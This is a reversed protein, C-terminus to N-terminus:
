FLFKGTQLDVFDHLQITAKYNNLHKYEGNRTQADLKFGIDYLSGNDTRQILNRKLFYQIVRKHTPIDDANLYFCCVGNSSLSAKVTNVIGLAIADHCLNFAYLLDNFHYMWKGCKADDFTYVEDSYFYVWPFILKQKVMRRISNM